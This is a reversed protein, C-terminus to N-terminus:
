YATMTFSFWGETQLFDTAGMLRNLYVCLTRAALKGHLRACLGPFTHTRNREIGFQDTMPSSM